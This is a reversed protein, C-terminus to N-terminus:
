ELRRYQIEDEPEAAALLRSGRSFICFRMILILSPRYGVAWESSM